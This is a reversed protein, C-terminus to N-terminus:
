TAGGRDRARDTSTEAETRPARPHDGQGTPGTGPPTRRTEGRRANQPKGPRIGLVTGTADQPLKASRRSRGQDLHPRLVRGRGDREGRATAPHLPPAPPHSPWHRPPTERTGDVPPTFRQSE